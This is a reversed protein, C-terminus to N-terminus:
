PRPFLVRVALGADNPGNDLVIRARHRDAVNKVIALGLGSGPVQNGARRYFRDFVHEREDRPIGPGTDVIELVAQDAEDYVSVDIRGGAPTYRVANDLLNALLARLGERDGGVTVANARAVGLDLGKAEALPAYEATVLRALEPLDIEAPPRRVAEPEQRALTLLQEVLHTARNLGQQLTAFATAREEPDHAREALQVQLRLATLPTRLEHAADAVFERQATLARDLRALLDNLAAVLPRIEEPMSSEPLPHLAAPTRAKVASAVAALPRLGRGVTIWVLVGLAPLLLLLPALTSLAAAAALHNRITMPQAVQVTLGRQQISFVRWEGENTAVTTYGLQARNPLTAHPHSFYLRVGDTRWVQIVFDFEDKPEVPEGALQEFTQDRLSLAMQKLHYDFLEDLERHARRYVGWAAILGAIVVVTLLGILLQRRISTM